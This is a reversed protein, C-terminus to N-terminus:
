ADGGPASVRACQRLWLRLRRFDATSASDVTFVLRQKKGDPYQVPVVCLLPHVFVGPLLRLELQSGFDASVGVLGGQGELRLLSLPCAPGNRMGAAVVLVAAILGSRVALSFPLFLCYLACSAAILLPIWRLLFSRHLGIIIPFQM